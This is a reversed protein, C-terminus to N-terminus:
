LLVDACHIYLARRFPPGFFHTLQIEVTNKGTLLM